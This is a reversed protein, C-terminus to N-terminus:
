RAEDVKIKETGSEVELIFQYIKENDSKNEKLNYFLYVHWMKPKIILESECNYKILNDHIVISDDLLIEDGGVFILTRPFNTFNINKSSVLPNEINEPNTYLKSYRLLLSKLMSPDKHKNIKYSEATISLDTWPSITIIGGPLGINEDKLKKCLSFALGGGASEGCLIIKENSFGESLLYKYAEFADELASPFPFEPALRYSIALVKIRNNSALVTGYGRAYEMNGAIFGGGHLYLIVGNNIGNLPFIWEAQFNNFYEKKYYVNFKYPKSLIKGLTSHAKRKYKIPIIKTFPRIIKLSIHILKSKFSM